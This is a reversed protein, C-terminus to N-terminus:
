FASTLFSAQMRIATVVGTPDKFYTGEKSSKLVTNVALSLGMSCNEIAMGETGVTAEKVMTQPVITATTAMIDKVM